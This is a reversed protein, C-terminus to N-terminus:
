HAVELAMPKEILLHRESALVARGIEYHWHNPVVVNVADIDDRALLERYDVYIAAEPHAAKASERSRESLVATARLEAGAPKAIGRAPPAGFLRYGILGFRLPSNM